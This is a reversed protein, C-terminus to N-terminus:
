AGSEEFSPVTMYLTVDLDKVDQESGVVVVGAEAQAAEWMRRARDNKEREVRFFHLGEQRPFSPPPSHEVVLPVGRIAQAGAKSPAMLKFDAGEEVLGVLKRPDMRTAIGLFYANPETFDEPQLTATFGKGGREFEITRFDRVVMGKVLPRIRRVVARFCPGPDGHDYDPVDFADATPSLVALEGLLDRLELYLDLPTTRRAKVLHPLRASFRNLSRLRLLAEAKGGEGGGLISPLQGAATKRTADLASALQTVMDTLVPSAALFLCPPVYEPDGIPLGADEGTGPIIRLVPLVELDSQDEGELLLRSNIQRIRLPQVNEGSNEDASGIERVRYRRKARWDDDASQEVVNAGTESWLPVALYVLMGGRAAEFASKIPLAALDAAGETERGGIQVELGSPMVAHLRRFRVYGNKLEDSAVDASIVGYPYSWAMQRASAFREVMGRQMFQLHQPRLFLGEHWHVDGPLRM